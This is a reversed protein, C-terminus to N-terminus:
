VKIAADRMFQKAADEWIAPVTIIWKINEEQQANGRDKFDRLLLDKM